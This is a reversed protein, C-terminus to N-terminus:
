CMEKKHLYCSPQWKM